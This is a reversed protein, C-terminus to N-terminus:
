NKSQLNLSSLNILLENILEKDIGDDLAHILEDQRAQGFTLRYYTLVKLLNKYKDIDRSFPLLPVFREIKINSNTETHWFPVLDSKSKNGEKEKSATEFLTNWYETIDATALVEANYKDVLNQRIVLAKYRNIRGERQEFDIPNHPLNWHFIKKCYLHFDLGEQGISTSALVFPRFPSNFAQRINIEKNKRSAMKNGSFGVAYHCRMNKERAINNASAIITKYDDIKVNSTKVSLIDVIQEAIDSCNSLNESDSLMYIYEDLMAQINGQISYQLVDEIYNEEKSTLKVVSVSEPKNFLTIFGNGIEYAANLLYQKNITLRDLARIAAIAASGLTLKAVFQVLEKIKDAPLRPLEISATDFYLGKAYQMYKKESNSEEAYGFEDDAEIITTNIADIENFWEKADNSDSQKDLLIPLAFEWRRQLAQNESNAYKNVIENIAEYLIGEILKLIEGESLHKGAYQLPDFVTALYKCPYKYIFNVLRLPMKDTSSTPFVIQPSPKRKDTAKKKFYVGEVKEEATYATAICNREVEYSLLTSIMRPVMQWASFVLTKSFGKIENFVGKSKYYTTSPPIWLLKWGHKGIAEDVLLRIKANPLKSSPLLNRYSDIAKTDLWLQKTDKLLKILESSKDALALTLKKHHQYDQLYSLAFPCSKVYEVPVPLKSKITDNLYVTLRDLAVFDNIDDPTIKITSTTSSKSNLMDSVLANNDESALLRETRLMVQLYKQELQKKVKVASATDGTLLKPNILYNFFEKRTDSLEMWDQEDGKLNLLFKLVDDFEKQHVEGNLHDYGSTYPKFPTASLLLTKADKMEFVTRAIEIAENTGSTDDLKIINSFRQFEDLIFIDAGLYELCAKSLEKRLIRIVEELFNYQHKNYGNIQEALKALGDWISISKGDFFESFAKRANSSTFYVDRLRAVYKGYLDNRLNHNYEANIRQLWNDKNAKGQLINRLGNYRGSDKNFKQYYTILNFIIARENIEGYNSRSEFSISPTLAQILFTNNQKLPKYALYTLRDVTDDVNNRDGTFNLKSINQKALALNSCIYVVNFTPNSKKDATDLYNQYAKAIIGKAVITKGLGVEDALLVRKRDNIYLQNYLHEVSNIQFDKLGDLTQRVIKEM